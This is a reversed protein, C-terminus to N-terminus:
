ITAEQHSTLLCHHNKNARHNLQAARGRECPLAFAGRIHSSSRQKGDGPSTGQSRVLNGYLQLLVGYCAPQAEIEVVGRPTRTAFSLDGM